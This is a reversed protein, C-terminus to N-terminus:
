RPLITIVLGSGVPCCGTMAQDAELTYIQEFPDCRQLGPLWIPGADPDCSAEFTWVDQGFVHTCTLSVHLDQIGGCNVQTDGAWEGGGVVPHFNLIVEVGQLCACGSFPDLNTVELIAVLSASIVNPCCGVLVGPGASASASDSASVGPSPLAVASESPSAGPSPLPAESVSPSESPFSPLPPSPSGSESPSESGGTVPLSFSPSPSPSESPSASSSGAGPSPLPIESSSLSPSTMTACCLMGVVYLPLPGASATYTGVLRARYAAGPNIPVANPEWLYCQERDRLHLEGDHQQVNALWVAGDRSRTRVLQRLPPYVPLQPGLYPAQENTSRRHM